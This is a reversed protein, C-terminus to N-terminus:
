KESIILAYEEPTYSKISLAHINGNSIHPDVSKYVARQRELTSKGAFSPCIVVANFHRGDGTIHATALSLNSEILAKIDQTDM